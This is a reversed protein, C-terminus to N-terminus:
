PLDLIWGDCNCAETPTNHSACDIAHHCCTKKTTNSRMSFEQAAMANAFWCVMLGEEMDGLTWNKAEKMRVFEKAWLMADNTQLLESDKM